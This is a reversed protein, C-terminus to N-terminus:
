LRMSVEEKEWKISEPLYGKLGDHDSDLLIQSADENRTGFMVQSDTGFGSCQEVNPPDSDAKTTQPEQYGSAFSEWKHLVFVM